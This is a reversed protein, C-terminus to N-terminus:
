PLRESRAEPLKGNPNPAGPPSGPRLREALKRAIVGALSLDEGVSRAEVRGASSQDARPDFAFSQLRVSTADVRRGPRYMREIQVTVVVEGPPQLLDAPPAAEAFSGDNSGPEPTARFTVRAVRRQREFLNELGAASDAAHPIWPTAIGASSAPHTTIVGARADVRDLDFQMERLVDKAADFTRSFAGADYPVVPPTTPAACAALALPVSWLSVRLRSRGSM